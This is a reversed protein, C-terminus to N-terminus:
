NLNVRAFDKQGTRGLVLRFPEPFAPLATEAEIPEPKGVAYTKRHWFITGGGAALLNQYWDVKPGYTLAIVFGQGAPWVMIVTEYPRGSRRGVHHIIAFPGLPLRTFVRLVRNTVYKNFVRIRDPFMSEERQLRVTAAQKTTLARM